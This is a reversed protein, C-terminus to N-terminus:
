ALAIRYVGGVSTAFGDAGDVALAAGSADTARLAGGACVVRCSEGALSRITAETLAGNEWALDVEFGGRAKLGRVSGTPWASPLAPLLRLEGAHSQLLMEAFGASGGFNGDIQFPPHNDFLNPLTSRRLLTNIYGHAGDGDQLRAFLNVLWAASWGTHGGGNALRSDITARCAAALEPTRVADIDEGPYLGYLHSVHRHGPESEAFPESWEQLRGAADIKYPPLKALATELEAAFGAEAEDGILRIAEVCNTFLDRTIAIDMTSGASISCSDGEPTLFCNEPSTSPSTTLAGEPTEVLWDLAFLAAGRMLPFAVDRLFATDRTFDYREWLHRCLWAGGMPWFAWMPHGDSPTAARWLDVNHHATWGRAGYHIAATRAGTKSLDGILALLPDHCESLNCLEAPWYNMQANINTTYDSFWPPQVRDNWIGQLNAAQTGSRSSAILLYRGFQFYLAEFAPDFAGAQYATLREDTPLSAQRVDGGLSLEVRGFLARYDDVHRARLAAWDLISAADLTASTRSSLDVAGPVPMVDFGAFDTAAAFLVTVESAGTVLLRGDAKREVSGGTAVARLRMEFSLGRDAEYLVSQPHDGRYNDAIHTPARGALASENAGVAPPIATPHPTEFGFALTMPADADNSIRMAIAQDPFSAFLERTYSVGGVRYRVSAIAEGIDLDREYAEVEGAEVAEQHTVRLRGLPQYAQVGVGLMKAGVLNEAEKYKKAAILERVKALHRLADYNNTDRPFGSWLTDENLDITEEGAGGFIMAGLRGNGLPLAEVWQKAAQKYWLRHETM